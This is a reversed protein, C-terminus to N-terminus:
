VKLLFGSNIKRDTKDAAYKADAYPQTCTAESEYLLGLDSTGRLYRLVRKPRRHRYTTPGDRFRALLSMSALIDIRTRLALYLLYDIMEVYLAVDFASYDKGRAKALFNNLWLLVCWNM